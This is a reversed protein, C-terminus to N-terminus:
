RSLFWKQNDYGLWDWQQLQSAPQVATPGGTVDLVKGSVASTLRVLGPEVPQIRWSQASSGTPTAQQVAVGNAQGGGTVELCLGSHEATVTVTGDPNPQLLFHQNPGNNWPWQQLVTGSQLSLSPVDLALGSHKAIVAYPATPDPQGAPAIHWQQNSGSLWQWQQLRDGPQTAAPGGTVDLVLGSSVNVIRYLGPASPEVRWCQTPGGLPQWVQVPVGNVTSASALDLCRGSHEAIILYQSDAIPVFRWRQNAGALSTWQQVIGGDGWGAITSLDVDLALGSNSAVVTYLTAPDFRPAPVLLWQQSQAQRWPELEIPAGNGMSASPVGLSLGTSPHRLRVYGNGQPRVELAQSATGAIPQQTPQGSGEGVDLALGSNEAVFTSTGDPNRDLQWRQNSGSLWEWQDIPDGPHVAEPGGAVDLVSGSHAASIARETAGTTLLFSVSSSALQSDGDAVTVSLTNLGIRGFLQPTSRSRGALPATAPPPPATTPSRPLPSLPAQPGDVVTNGQGQLMTRATSADSWIVSAQEIGTSPEKGFLMQELLLRHALPFLTFDLQDVVPSEKGTPDTVLLHDASLDIVASLSTDVALPFSIETASAAVAPVPGGSTTATSGDPPDIPPDPTVLNGPRARVVASLSLRGSGNDLWDEPRYYWPQDNLEISIRPPVGLTTQAFTNNVGSLEVIFSCGFPLGANPSPSSIKIALPAGTQQRLRWLPSTNAQQTAYVYGPSTEIQYGFAQSTTNREGTDITYFHDGNDPKYLRYLPVTGQQQVALLYGTIGELVYGAQTVARDREAPNSTYFHDGNSQNFLRYLPVTGPEEAALLWGASGEAVYGLSAVANDREAASTTYFHDRIPAPVLQVALSSVQDPNVQNAAAQKATALQASVTGARQVQGVAAAVMTQYDSDGIMLGGLIAAIASASITVRGLDFLIAGGVTVRLDFHLDTASAAALHQRVRNDVEAGTIRGSDAAAALLDALGDAASTLLGTLLGPLFALADFLEYYLNLVIDRAWPPWQSVADTVINAGYVRLQSVATVEKSALTGAFTHLNNAISNLLEQLQAELNGILGQLATWAQKLDEIWGKVGTIILRSGEALVVGVQLVRNEAHSAVLLLVGPLVDGVTRVAGGAVQELAKGLADPDTAADSSVIHQLVATPDTGFGFRMLVDVLNLLPTLNNDSLDTLITACLDIMGAIDDPSILLLGGLDSLFQIVPDSSGARIVAATNHMAAAGNLSMHHVLTQLMALLPHTVAGVLVSSATERLRMGAIDTGLGPLAPLIVTPLAVLTPRAVDNILASVVADGAHAARLPELLHPIVNNNVADSAVSIFSQLIQQREAPTPNVLDALLTGLLSASPGVGLLKRLWDAASGVGPANSLQQELETFSLM